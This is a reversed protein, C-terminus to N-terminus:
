HFIFQKWHLSLQALFGINGKFPTIVLPMIVEYNTISNGSSHM